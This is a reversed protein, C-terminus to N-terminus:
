ELSVSALGGLHTRRSDFGPELVARKRRNLATLNASADAIPACGMSDLAIGGGTLILWAHFDLSDDRIVKRISQHM